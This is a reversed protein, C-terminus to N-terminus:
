NDSTSLTKGRIETPYKAQILKTKANQTNVAAWNEIDVTVIFLPLIPPFIEWFSMWICMEQFNQVSYYLPAATAWTTDFHGCM